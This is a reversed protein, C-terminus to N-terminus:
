IIIYIYFIFIYYFLLVFIHASNIIHSDFPLPVLLDRIVNEGQPGYKLKIRLMDQKNTTEIRDYEQIYGQELLVKVIGECVSSAKVNVYEKEVHIANRIRTLMDAIPDAHM